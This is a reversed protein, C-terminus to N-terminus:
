TDLFFATRRASIEARLTSGRLRDSAAGTLFLRAGDTAILADEPHPFAALDMSLSDHVPHVIIRMGSGDPLDTADILRRVLIAADATFTLV